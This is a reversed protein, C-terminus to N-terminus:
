DASKEREFVEDSVAVLCFESKLRDDFDSRTSEGARSLWTTCPGALQGEDPLRYISGGWTGLYWGSPGRSGWFSNGSLRGDPRRKSCLCTRHWTGYDEIGNTFFGADTVARTITEYDEVM